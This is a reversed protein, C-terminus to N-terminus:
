SPPVARWVQIYNRTPPSGLRTLFGTADFVAACDPVKYIVYLKQSLLKGLNAAVKEMVERSFPNYLYVVLEGEPFRYEAADALVVIANPIQMKALNEKAIKALEHAFEVGIVQKFGLKAAVLLARGKGCGLDVFTFKRPDDPLLDIADILEEEDTAQYKQGFIVNPSDIKFNWLRVSGGTDTGNKLDFEDKTGGHGLLAGIEQGWLAELLTTRFGVTKLRRVTKLALLKLDVRM